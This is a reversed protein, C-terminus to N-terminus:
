ESVSCYREADSSQSGDLITCGPWAAALRALSERDLYSNAINLWTLGGLHPALALLWRVGTPGLTGLSLDLGRLRSLLRIPPALALTELIEDTCTSNALALHSLRPCGAELSALLQAVDDWDCTEESSYECDGFWLVLRELRPWTARALVALSEKGCSSGCLEFVRLAPLALEPGLEACNGHLRVEELRPCLPWLAGVKGLYVASIDREVYCHGPGGWRPAFDVFGGIELVRLAPRPGRAILKDVYESFFVARTWVFRVRLELHEILAASALELLADYLPPTERERAATLQLRARRIFGQHWSAGLSQKDDAEVIPGCKGALAGLLAEGHEAFLQRERERLAADAPHRRLRDQVVALEGRPDGLRQQQDAYVLRLEDDFPSALLNALTIAMPEGVIARGRVAWEPPGAV